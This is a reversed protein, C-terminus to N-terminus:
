GRRFGARRMMMGRNGPVLVEDAIRKQEPSLAAYLPKEAALLDNIRTVAEAHFSQLRELREIANPRQQSPRNGPRMPREQQRAQMRQDMDKANKRLVSAYADWSAQQADTIKLATKLYALRAEVRESPRSFARNELRRPGAGPAPQAIAMSATAASLFAAALAMTLSSRM